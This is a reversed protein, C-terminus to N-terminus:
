MSVFIGIALVIATLILALSIKRGAASHIVLALTSLTAIVILGIIAKRNQRLKSKSIDLIMGHDIVYWSRHHQSAAEMNGKIRQGNV